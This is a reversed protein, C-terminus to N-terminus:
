GRWLVKEWPPDPPIVERIFDVFARVRVPVPRGPVYTVSVAPGEAMYDRLIVKLKGTAIADAAIFSAATAIGIGAIAADILAEGNNVNLIGSVAVSFTRDDKEFDWNRYRRTGPIAYALCRHEGLHAPTRPEGYRELYQPSACTVFKTNCLHRAILGSNGLDGVRLAVDIGHEVLHLPQDNLEVDLTIEPYRAVFETLAPVVIKKGFGVPMHVRLRGQPVARARAVASHADDVDALIRRCRELYATGDETLAVKRTTRHLLRVGLQHELRSVARSAGSPTVGLRRGAVSFSEGEAVAVFVAMSNLDWRVM